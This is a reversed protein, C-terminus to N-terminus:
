ENAVIPIVNCFDFYYACRILMFRFTSLHAVMAIVLIRLNQEGHTCSVVAADRWAM